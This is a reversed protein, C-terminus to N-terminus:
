FGTDVKTMRRFLFYVAFVLIITVVALAATAPVNGAQQLNFVAVGLTENGVSWLLMSVTLEHMAPILVLFWGAVLGPWALPFIIDRGAQWWRAGSLRAAEELSGAVQSIAAATSRVPFILYRIIYALLIIWLTNYLVWGTLPLRQSYTIIMALAVVTGPLNHPLNSLYELFSRQWWKSKLSVYATIGGLIMALTAGGLALVASNFLARRAVPMGCLVYRYHELTLNDPAPELGYAKIFSTLLIALVPALSFFLVFIAVALALPRRWIRLPITSSGGGKGTIVAYNKGRMLLNAGLLSTGALLGLIVSLAAALALHNSLSANNVLDYIRTTLVYLGESFGLTAPVGFNSITYSFVLIAGNLVVPKMLPLTVDRQVRWRDAGAVRAAEELTVDIRGFAGIFTLYGMPYSHLVLVLIIGGWGYINLLFEESGSFAQYLKNFYGVPGLLQTWAFAGIFPPILYPLLLWPKLWEKAPLDTRAVLWALMAGAATALVTVVIGLALTRGLAIYNAPQTAIQRYNELSLHGGYIFSEGLLRLLPYGVMLGLLLILIFDKLPQGSLLDKFRLTM